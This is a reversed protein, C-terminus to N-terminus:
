FEIKFFINLFIYPLFNLNAISISYYLYNNSLIARVM